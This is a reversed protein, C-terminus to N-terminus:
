GTATSGSGATNKAGKATLFDLVDADYQWQSIEATERLKGNATRELMRETTMEYRLEFRQIRRRLVRKHDSLRRPKGDKPPKSPAQNRTSARGRSGDTAKRRPRGGRGRASGAALGSGNTSRAGNAELDALEDADHQWRSIEATERFEGTATRELMRETSMEYRLEFRQIRRRLTRKYDSLRRVKLGKPFNLLEGNRTSM